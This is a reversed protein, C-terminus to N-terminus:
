VEEKARIGHKAEMEQKFQELPIGCGAQKSELGRKIGAVTEASEIEAVFQQHSSVTDIILQEITKGSAKALPAIQEVLEDPITIELRM